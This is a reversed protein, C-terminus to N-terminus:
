KAILQLVVDGIIAVKIELLTLFLFFRYKQEKIELFLARLSFIIDLSINSTNKNSKQACRSLADQECFMKICHAEM